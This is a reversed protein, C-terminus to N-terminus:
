HSVDFLTAKLFNHYSFYNSQKQNSPYNGERQWLDGAPDGEGAAEEVPQPVQQPSDGGGQDTEGLGGLVVCYSNLYVSISSFFLIIM